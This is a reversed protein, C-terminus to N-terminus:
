PAFNKCCLFNFRRSRRSGRLRYVLVGSARLRRMKLRKHMKTAMTKNTQKSSPRGHSRRNKQAQHRCINRASLASSPLMGRGVARIAGKYGQFSIENMLHKIANIRIVNEGM